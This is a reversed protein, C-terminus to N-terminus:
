RDDGLRVSGPIINGCLLAALQVATGVGPPWEAPESALKILLVLGALLSPHIHVLRSRNDCAHELAEDGRSSRGCFKASREPAERGRRM